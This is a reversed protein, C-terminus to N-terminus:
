DEFSELKSEIEEFLGECADELLDLVLEFGEVGEYYPDPVHDYDSSLSFEIMKRVKGRDKVNPALRVASNYNADDMTIIYDFIYFDDVELRRSLSNINYGRLKGAERMRKDPLEGTHVGSIGASDILFRDQMGAREVITKFIEEAAPSRCINGLCVFVVKIKELNHNKNKM